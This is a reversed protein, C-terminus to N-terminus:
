VAIGANLKAARLLVNHAGTGAVLTTQVFYPGNVNYDHPVLAPDATAVQLKRAGLNTQSTSTRYNSKEYGLVWLFELMLTEEQERDIAAQKEREVDLDHKAWLIADSIAKQRTELVALENEIEQVKTV